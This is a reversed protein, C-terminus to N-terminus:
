VRALWKISNLKIILHIKRVRIKEKINGQIQLKAAWGVSKISIVLFNKCIFLLVLYLIM